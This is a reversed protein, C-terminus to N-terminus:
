RTPKARLGIISTKVSGVIMRCDTYANQLAKANRAVVNELIQDLENMSREVLSLVGELRESDISQSYQLHMKYLTLLYPVVISYPVILM